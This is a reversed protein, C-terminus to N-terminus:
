QNAGRNTSLSQKKLFDEIFDCAAELKGLRYTEGDNFGEYFVCDARNTECDYIAMRFAAEQNPAEIYKDRQEKWVHCYAYFDEDSSEGYFADLHKQLVPMADELTKRAITTLKTTDYM